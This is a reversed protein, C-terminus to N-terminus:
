VLAGQCPGAVTEPLSPCSIGGAGANGGHRGAPEVLREAADGLRHGVPPACMVLLHSQPRAASPRAVTREPVARASERSSRISCRMLRSGVSSPLWTSAST